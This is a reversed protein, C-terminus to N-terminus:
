AIQSRGLRALWTEAAARVREVTIDDLCFSQRCAAQTRRDCPRCPAASELVTHRGGPGRPGTAAPNLVSFLAVLPVDLAAAVHMPGTDHTIFLDCAAIAAALQRVDTRGCLDLSTGPTLTRAVEETASMEASTGTLLVQVGRTRALDPLLAQWRAIPWRKHEFNRHGRSLRNTGVHVGVLPRAEDRGLSALRRRAAEREEDTVILRAPPTPGIGGTVALALQHLRDSCHAGTPHVLQNSLIRPVGARHAAWQWIRHDHDHCLIIAAVNQRTLWRTWRRRELVLRLWRPNPHPVTVLRDVCPHHELIALPWSGAVIIEADPAGRRLTELAPTAMVLDGLRGTEVVLFAKPPPTM